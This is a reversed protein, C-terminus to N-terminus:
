ETHDITLHTIPGVRGLFSGNPEAQLPDPRM